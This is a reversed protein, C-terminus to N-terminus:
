ENFSSLKVSTIKLCNLINHRFMGKSNFHCLYVYSLSTHVHFFSFCVQRLKSSSLASKPTSDTKIPGIAKMLDAKIDFEDSVKRSKANEEEPDSDGQFFFCLVFLSLLRKININRYLM